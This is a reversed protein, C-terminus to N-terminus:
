TYYYLLKVAGDLAQVSQYLEILLEGTDVMSKVEIDPLKEILYAELKQLDMEYFLIIIKDGLLM